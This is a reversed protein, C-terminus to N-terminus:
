RRINGAIDRSGWIAGIAGSKMVLPLKMYDLLTSHCPLSQRLIRVKLHGNVGNAM